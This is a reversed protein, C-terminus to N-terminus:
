VSKNFLNMATDAGSVVFTKIAEGARDFIGQLMESEASTWEGIVYDVQHGRPFENGIGVRIRAFESTGICEIINKLGNHGGDSGKKRIRITGLPLAIDDVVVILRDPTIKERDMWYRVANGSLNMYTSPKLLILKNGRFNINDLSGYRSSLFSTGSERIFSDLVMFGMNHRTNRYEDGINGLGAILFSRGM